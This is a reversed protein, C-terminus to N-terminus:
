LRAKLALADDIAASHGGVDRSSAEIFDRYLDRKITGWSGMKPYSQVSEAVEQAKALVGETGGAVTYDVLGASLAEAPTFRHGELAIKRVTRPDPVKCRMIAALSLPWGSGFHVENMCLWANRKGGDTMVRYDCCLALALGGAFTHGNLAAITPIPFTILRRMLPNFCHPFFTTASVPNSMIGAFDLGNSFFKDQSRNGVIVLAGEAGKRDPTKQAARYATRWDKEVQDLLPMVAEDIFHFTLRNDAGNHLEIVWLTPTPHTLTALPQGSPLKM